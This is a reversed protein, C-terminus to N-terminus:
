LESLWGMVRPPQGTLEIASIRYDGRWTYTAVWFEAAFHMQQLKRKTIYDLGSGWAASARYKVEVFYVISAKTAVIDIECWRTRWNQTIIKFGNRRLYKAAAQEAAKGSATSM